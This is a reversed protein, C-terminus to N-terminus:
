RGVEEAAWRRLYGLRKEAEDQDPCREHVFREASQSLREGAVLAFKHERAVDRPLVNVQAGASVYGAKAVAQMIEPNALSSYPASIDLRIKDAARSSPPPPPTSSEAADWQVIFYRPGLDLPVHQVRGGEDIQLAGTTNGAEGFSQQYPSGCYIYGPGAQHRHYHGLILPPGGQPLAAHSADPRWAKWPLRMGEADQHGTNMAAGVVGFHGFVIRVKSGSAVRKLAELQADADKRYPCFGYPGDTGPETWVRIGPEALVELANVGDVTVQDHNGPVLDVHIGEKAWQHLEAKVRNLLRVNVQYRLHWFDGCFVVHGKELLAQAKVASLVKFCIDESSERLHLDSFVIM